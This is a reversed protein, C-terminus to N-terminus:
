QSSFTASAKVPPGIVSGVIASHITDMQRSAHRVLAALIGPHFGAQIVFRCGAREIKARRETPPNLLENTMQMDIWDARRELCAQIMLANHRGTGTANVLLDFDTLTAVDINAADLELLETRRSLDVAPLSSQLNGLKSRNRGSLIVTVDTSTLLYEALKRGAYGTAGVLLVRKPSEEHM